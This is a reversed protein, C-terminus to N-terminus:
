LGVGIGQFLEAWHLDALCYLAASVSDASAVALRDAVDKSVAASLDDMKIRFDPADFAYSAVALTLEQAKDPSWGSLFQNWLDTESKVREVAQDVAADMVADMGLTVWQKEVVADLDLTRLQEAFVHQTVVNLESQLSEESVSGCSQLTPPAAQVPPAALVPTSELVLAVVLAASLWQLRYRLLNKIIANM